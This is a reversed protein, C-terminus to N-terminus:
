SLSKKGGVGGDVVGEVRLAVQDASGSKAEESDFGIASPDRRRGGGSRDAPGPKGRSPGSLKDTGGFWRLDTRGRVLALIVGLLLVHLVILRRRGTSRSRLVFFM